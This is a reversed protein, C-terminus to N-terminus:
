DIGGAVELHNRMLKRLMQHDRETIQLMRRAPMTATGDQHYVWRPTSGRGQGARVRNIVRMSRKKAEWSFGAKMAGSRVLIPKGPYHKAKWAAYEPSLPAWRAPFGRRRFQMPIHEEVLYQGFFYLVPEMDEMRAGLEAFHDIAVDAVGNERLIMEAGIVRVLTRRGQSHGFRLPRQVRTPTAM